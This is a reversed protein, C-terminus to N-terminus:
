NSAISGTIYGNQDITFEASAGHLKIAASFENITIGTSIDKYSSIYVPGTAYIPANGHTTTGYWGTVALYFSKAPLVQEDILSLLTTIQTWTAYVEITDGSMSDQHFNGKIAFTSCETWYFALHGAAPGWLTITQQEDDFELSIQDLDASSDTRSTWMFSAFGSEHSLGDYVFKRGDLYAEIALANNALMTAMEGYTTMDVGSDTLDVEFIPTRTEGSGGGGQAIMNQVEATTPYENFVRKRLKYDRM